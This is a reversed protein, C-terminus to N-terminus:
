LYSIVLKWLNSHVHKHDRFLKKLDLFLLIVSWAISYCLKVEIIVFQEM